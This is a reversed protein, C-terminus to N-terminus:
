EEKVNTITYYTQNDSEAAVEQFKKVQVAGGGVYIFSNNTAISEITGGYGVTNGVFELTSENYKRVIQNSGGIYIFGNNIAIANISGDVLDVLNSVITLNSEHLKRLTGTSSGGYVFGNNIAISRVEGTTGFGASTAVAQLNSERHKRITRSSTNNGTGGIYVFGNYVALARIGFSTYETVNPISLTAESSKVLPAFGGVTRNTGGSFVFGNNIAIKLIEGPYEAGSRVFALTSENYKKLNRNNGLNGDGAAYIFGNNIAITEIGAGYSATNGVLALTRENYKSVVNATAGGVYIFGNNIAITKIYGYNGTNGTISLNSQNLTSNPGNFTSSTMTTNNLIVTGTASNNLLWQNFTLNSLNPTPNFLFDYGNYVVYKASNEDQVVYNVYDVSGGSQILKQILFSEGM